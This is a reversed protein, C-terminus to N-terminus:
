DRVYGLARLTEEFDGSDEPLSVADRSLEGFSAVRHLPARAAEARLWGEIPQGAQDDAVPLGLRDLITPGVDTIPVVGLDVGERVDAGWAVFIGDRAHKWRHDSPLTRVVSPSPRDVNWFEVWFDDSGRVAMDPAPQVADGPMPLLEVPFRRGDGDAIERAAAALFRMLAQRPTEGPELAIGRADLAEATVREEAFYLHWMNHFVLTEDHDIVGEREWALLGLGALFRNLDVAHDAAGFGHDSAVILTTDPALSAMLEGVYADLTRYVPLVEPAFGALHHANDSQGFVYLFLDWETSTQFHRAQEVADSTIRPLLHVPLFEHPLYFGFKERLTSALGGPYTFPHDLPVYTPSLQYGFKGNARRQFRLKVFGPQPGLDGPVLVGLWRSFRDM